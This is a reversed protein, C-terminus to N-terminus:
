ERMGSDEESEGVSSEWNERRGQELGAVGIM